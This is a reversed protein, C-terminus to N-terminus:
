LKVSRGDCLITLYEDRPHKPHDHYACDCRECVCRGDAREFEVDAAPMNKQSWATLAKLRMVAKDFRPQMDALLNRRALWGGYMQGFSFACIFTLMVAWYYGVNRTFHDLM